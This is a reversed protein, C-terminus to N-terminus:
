GKVGVDENVAGAVVDNHEKIAGATDLIAIRDEGRLAVWIEKGNRSFTPEHPERGVLVGSSLREANTEPATQRNPTNGIVKLTRLDILYVNSSGRGTCALLTNDPSPAAGHVQIAGHYLPKSIMASHTPTVGGTVLRFPPRSDEDFSTLNITRDVKNTAPNIVSLTNSDENCLLVRDQAADDSKTQASLPSSSLSSSLATAGVATIFSRRTTNM